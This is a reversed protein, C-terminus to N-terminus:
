DPPLRADLRRRRRQWEGDLSKLRAYRRNPTRFRIHEHFDSDSDSLLTSHPRRIAVPGCLEYDYKFSLKMTLHRETGPLSRVFVDTGDDIATVPYLRPFLGRPEIVHSMWVGTLPGTPATACLQAFDEYGHGGRDDLERFFTCTFFSSNSFGLRPM